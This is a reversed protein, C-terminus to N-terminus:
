RSALVLRLGERVLDSQTRGTREALSELEAYEADSVRARVVPSRGKGPGLRPRGGLARVAAGRDSEGTVWMLDRRAAETASRGRLVPGSGPLEGREVLEQYYREGPTKTM